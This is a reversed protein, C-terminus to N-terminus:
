HKKVNGPTSVLFYPFNDDDVVSFMREMGRHVQAVDSSKKVTHLQKYLLAPIAYLCIYMHIFPSLRESRSKSFYKHASSTMCM